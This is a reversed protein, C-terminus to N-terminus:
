VKFDTKISIDKLDKEAIETLEKSNMTVSNEIHFPWTVFQLCVLFLCFLEM